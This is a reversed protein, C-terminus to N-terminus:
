YFRKLAPVYYVVKLKEGDLNIQGIFAYIPQIYRTNVINEYMGVEISIIEFTNESSILSPDVYSDDEWNSVSVLFKKDKQLLDYAERPTRIYYTQVANNDTVDQNIPWNYLGIEAIQNFNNGQEYFRPVVIYNNSKVYDPYMAKVQINPNTKNINQYVRTADIRVFEYDDNTTVNVFDDQDYDYEVPHVDFEYNEFDTSIGVTSLSNQFVSGLNISPDEQFARSVDIINANMVDQEVGSRILSSDKYSILNYLGNIELERGSEQWRFTTESIEIIESTFEFNSAIRRPIESTSLDVAKEEIKYVNAVPTLDSSKPYENSVYLSGLTTSDIFESPQFNGQVDLPIITLKNIDSFGAEEYVNQGTNLNDTFRSRLANFVNYGICLFLVVGLVALVKKTWYVSTYLSM